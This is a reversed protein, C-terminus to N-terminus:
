FTKRTNSWKWGFGSRNSRLRHPLCLFRWRCRALRLAADIAALDMQHTFPLLCRRGQTCEEQM